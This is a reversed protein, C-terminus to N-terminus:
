QNLTQAPCEALMRQRQLLICNHLAQVADLPCHHSPLQIMKALLINLTLKM